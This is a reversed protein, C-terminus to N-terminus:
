HKKRKLLNIILAVGFRMWIGLRVIVNLIFPNDNEYHKCYFLVMSRHFEYLMRWPRKKSSAGKHHIIKAAPHYYIEWGAQKIRYCWDIDEGYMFFDEDLLGVQDVVTRRVLMFAGVICDVPYTLNEDLYTLNYQAFRSSAPFIKSLGLAQYLANLPTPFSRRCALDLRGDPLVVKCGAAGVRPHQHMFELMTDLTGPLIVTDSNLLLIYKGGSGKIAFNNAAAFGVNAPNELLHVQPFLEKIMTSSGDSSNNDVVWVEFAHGLQHNCVSELTQKLLEKTNYSVIIISLEM